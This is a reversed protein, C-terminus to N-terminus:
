YGGHAILPQMASDYIFNGRGYQKVTLYPGTDTQALVTADVPQVQWILNTLQTIHAPSTGWSIEESSLPVRWNLVGSPFHSVLAHNTSKSFTTNRVWNTLNTNSMHLGLENAFAFDGRGAGNTQRTFASSGVLLTGGAAVYNTLFAIEADAVAESALSIVIPYRPQGNTDILRGALIDADTVVEFSTGDSRLAEKVSDPMIFYHWNTPWWEYGTTNTGSPTGPNTVTMGDLARTFESDHVAVVPLAARASGCATLAVIVSLWALFAYTVRTLSTRFFSKGGPVHSDVGELALVSELQM